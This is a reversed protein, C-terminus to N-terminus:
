VFNVFWMAILSINHSFFNQVFNSIVLPLTKHNYAGLEYKMNIYPKWKFFFFFSENIRYANMLSRNQTHTHTKNAILFVFFLCSVSHFKRLISLSLGYRTCQFVLASYTMNPLLISNPGFYVARFFNSLSNSM